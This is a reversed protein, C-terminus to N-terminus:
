IYIGSIIAAIVYSISLGLLFSEKSSLTYRGLERLWFITAHFIHKVVNLSALVFIVLFVKNIIDLVM